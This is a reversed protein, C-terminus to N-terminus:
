PRKPPVLSVDTGIQWFVAYSGLLGLNESNQLSSGTNKKLDPPTCKLFLYLNMVSFIVKIGCIFSTNTQNLTFVFDAICYGNSNQESTENVPV